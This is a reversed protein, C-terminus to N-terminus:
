YGNSCFLVRNDLVGYEDFLIVVLILCVRTRNSICESGVALSLSLLGLCQVRGSGLIWVRGVCV